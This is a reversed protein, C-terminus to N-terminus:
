GRGGMTVSRTTFSIPVVVTLWVLNVNLKSISNHIKYLALDGNLLEDYKLYLVKLVFPRRATSATM